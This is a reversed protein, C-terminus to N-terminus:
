PPVRRVKEANVREMCGTSNRSVNEGEINSAQERTDITPHAYHRPEQIRGARSVTCSTCNSASRCLIEYLKWPSERTASHAFVAPLRICAEVRFLAPEDYHFRNINWQRHGM